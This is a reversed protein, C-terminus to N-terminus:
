QRYPIEPELFELFSYRFSIVTKLGFTHTFSETHQSLSRIPSHAYTHILFYIRTFSLFCSPIPLHIKPIILSNLPHTFLSLNSYNLNKERGGKRAKRFLLSILWFLIFLVIFISSELLHNKGGKQIRNM